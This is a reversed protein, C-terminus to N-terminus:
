RCRPRSGNVTAACTGPRSSSSRGSSRMPRRPSRWVRGAADSSRRRDQRAGRSTRPRPVDAAAAPSWRWCRGADVRDAAPSTRGARAGRGGTSRTRDHTAGAQQAVQEPPQPRTAEGRGLADRRHREAPGISHQPGEEVADDVAVSRDRRIPRRHPRRGLVQDSVQQEHEGAQLLPRSRRRLRRTVEPQPLHVRRMPLVLQERRYRKGIRQQAHSSRSAPRLWAAAAAAAPYPCALSRLLRSRREPRSATRKEVSRRRM